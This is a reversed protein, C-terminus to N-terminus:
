TRAQLITSLHHHTTLSHVGGVYDLLSGGYWAGTVGLWQYFALMPPLPQPPATTTSNHLLLLLPRIIIHFQQRVRMIM